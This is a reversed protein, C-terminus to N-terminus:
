MRSLEHWSVIANAGQKHYNGAHAGRGEATIRFEARGKRATVIPLATPNPTGGEFVLCALTSTDPLRELCLRGFDESLTEESADLCVLWRVGTFIEPAFARLGDLVMYIM